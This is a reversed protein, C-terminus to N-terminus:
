LETRSFVAAGVTFFLLGIGLLVGVPLLMEATSFQRWIAGELSYIAWKVPSAQSIARMWGPMFMAPVMGGGAMAMVMLIAWGAGAVSRETRGLVSILMMIGVFCLASAFIAMSLQTLNSTNVGFVVRGISLLLIMVVICAIFCATGKGALIHVRGIPALRLRLFTGTTREQVISISFAAACGILGWVIAQPFSVDYSSRPYEKSIAREVSEVEIEGMGMQTGDLITSDASRYFDGLSTFLGTLSGRQEDSLGTSNKIGALAMETNRIMTQSDSMRRQFSAFMLRTIIGQLYGAEARRSPDVGIKVPLPTDSFFPNFDSFGKDILVYGTLKGKRIYEKAEDAGLHFVELAESKELESVFEASTSTSDQDSVAIRIARPGEDDNSFISGFFIAFGLPFIVVWFLGFKDRWLLLLDKLALNLVRRM